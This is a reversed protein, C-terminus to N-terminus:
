FRRRFGVTWPCLKASRDNESYQKEILSDFIVEFNSLAIIRMLNGFKLVM